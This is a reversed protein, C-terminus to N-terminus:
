GNWGYQKRVRARVDEPVKDGYGSLIIDGYEKLEFIKGDSLAKELQPAKLPNVELFYYARQGTYDNGFFLQVREGTIQNKSHFHLSM